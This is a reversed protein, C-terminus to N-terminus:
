CGKNVLLRVFGEYGGMIASILLPRGSKFTFNPDAGRRLLAKATVPHKETYALALATKGDKDKADILQPNKSIRLFYNPLRSPVGDKCGVLAADTEM